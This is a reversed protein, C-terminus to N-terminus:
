SVFLGIAVCMYLGYSFYHKYINKRFRDLVNRYKIRRLPLYLGYSTRLQYISYIVYMIFCVMMFIPAGYCLMIQQFIINSDHWSDGHIHNFWGDKPQPCFNFIKYKECIFQKGLIRKPILGIDELNGRYIDYTHWLSMPGTTM